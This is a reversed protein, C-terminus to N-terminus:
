SKPNRPKETRYFEVRLPKDSDFHVDRQPFAITIGADAFAKDIMFRLDSALQLRGVKGSDLWFLLTFVLSDSGFDDFRV